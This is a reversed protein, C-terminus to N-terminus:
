TVSLGMAQWPMVQLDMAPWKQSLLPRVVFLALILVTLALILAQVTSWLYRELFQAFLGPSEIGDILPPVEYALSRITV